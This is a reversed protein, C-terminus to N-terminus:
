YSGGSTKLSRKAQVAGTFGDFTENCCTRVTGSGRSVATLNM